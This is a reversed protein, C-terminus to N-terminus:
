LLQGGRTSASGVSDQALGCHVSAGPDFAAESSLCTNCFWFVPAPVEWTLNVEQECGHPTGRSVLLAWPVPFEGALPWYSM